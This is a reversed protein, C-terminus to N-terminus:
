QLHPADKENECQHDMLDTDALLHFKVTASWPKTFAKSDDFTYEIEIHGFDPRRFRETLHLADCHPTGGGDIWTKDNFGATEVVFTAGQWKGVSYGFWAPEPDAPLSRGDTFIQRWNNFEEILIATVSSTQLIKFPLGPRLMDPPIGSPLCKSTPIDRSQNRQRTERISRAWATLPSGGPLDAALNAHREVSEWVGSLDVKGDPTRPAPASLEPKGDPTRPIGPTAYNLWQASASQLDIALLLLTFRFKV